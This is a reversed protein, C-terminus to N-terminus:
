APLSKRCTKLHCTSDNSPGVFYDRPYAKPLRREKEESLNCPVWAAGVVKPSPSRLSWCWMTVAKIKLGSCDSITRILFTGDWLAVLAESELVIRHRICVEGTFISTGQREEQHRPFTGISTVLGRSPNDLFVLCKWSMSAWCFSCFFYLLM